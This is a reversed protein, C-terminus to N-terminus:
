IATFNRYGQAYWGGHMVAYVRSRLPLPLWIWDTRLRELLATSIYKVAWRVSSPVPAITREDPWLEHTVRAARGMARQRERWDALTVPHDHLALLSPRHELNVGSDALRMGFEADEYGFKLREDMGGVDLWVDRPLSAHATYLYRPDPLPGESLHPFAFQAGEQLWAMFPTLVLEPAYEIRGGIALARAGGALHADAHAKVLQRDAPRTDDNLSLVLDAELHRVAHNRSASVGPRPERLIEIPVRFSPTLRRVAEVTGDRSGNDVVAVVLEHDGLEQEGLARLTALLQRRRNRTPVVAGVRM